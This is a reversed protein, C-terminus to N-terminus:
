VTQTAYACILSPNATVSGYLERLRLLGLRTCADALEIPSKVPYTHIQQVYIAPSPVQAVGVVAPAAASIAFGAPRANRVQLIAGQPTAGSSLVSVDWCGAASGSVLVSTSSGPWVVLQLMQTPARTCVAQVPKANSLVTVAALLRAAQTAAEAADPSALIAYAYSHSSAVAAQDHSLFMTFLQSRLTENDGQTIAFETGEHVRNSVTFSEPPANTSTSDAGGTQGRLVAYLLGDHWVWSSGATGPIPVTVETNNPLRHAVVGQEGILIDGFVSSQQVSTTIPMGSCQPGRIIDTGLAITVNESFFWSKGAMVCATPSPAPPAPARGAVTGGTCNAAAELPKTTSKLWCCPEGVRCPLASDREWSTWTWCSCGATACCRQQCEVASATHSPGGVSVAGALACHMGPSPNSANCSPSALSPEWSQAAVATSITSADYRARAFDMATVGVGGDSLGGVFAKRIDGQRIHTCEDASTERDQELYQVETTGPLLTWNLLPFSAAYQEGRSYVTTTGDAMMRGKKNEDNVCETAETRSSVAHVFISYEPRHHATYDSDYFHTHHRLAPLHGVLRESFAAFETARSRNTSGISSLLPAFFVGIPTTFPPQFDPFALEFPTFAAFYHYHGQNVGFSDTKDFDAVRM